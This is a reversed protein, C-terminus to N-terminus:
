EGYINIKHGCKCVSECRPAIQYNGMCYCTVCPGGSTMYGDEDFGEANIWYADDKQENRFDICLDCTDGPCIMYALRKYKKIECVDYTKKNPFYPNEYFFTNSEDYEDDKPTEALKLHKHLTIILHDDDLCTGSKATFLNNSEIINVLNEDTCDKCNDGDCLIYNMCGYRTIDNECIHEAHVMKGCTCEVIKLKTHFVVTLTNAQNNYEEM